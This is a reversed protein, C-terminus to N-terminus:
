QRPVVLGDISENRAEFLWLFLRILPIYLVLLVLSGILTVIMQPWFTTPTALIPVLQVDTVSNQQYWMNIGIFWIALQLSWYAIRVHMSSLGLAFLGLALCTLLGGPSFSGGVPGVIELLTASVNDGAQMFLIAIRLAAYLGYLILLLGIVRLLN